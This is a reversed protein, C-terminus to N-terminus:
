GKYGVYVEVSSASYGPFVFNGYLQGDSGPYLKTLWKKLRSYSDDSSSYAYYYQGDTDYSHYEVQTGSPVNTVRSKHYGTVIIKGIKVGSDVDLVWNVPEYSTLVLDRNTGNDGRVEVEVTGEPHYGYSHQVGPPYSGEYVGVAVVGPNSPKDDEEEDEEPESTSSSVVLQGTTLLSKSSADYVAITYTGATPWGGFYASWKGNSVKSPYPYAIIVCQTPDGECRNAEAVSEYDYSGRYTSPLQYVYLKSIQKARGTITTPGNTGAKLSKADITASAAGEDEDYNKNILKFTAGDVIKLAGPESGVPLYEMDTGPKFPSSPYIVATIRYTGSPLSFWHVGGPNNAFGEHASALGLHAKVVGGKTADVKYTSGMLTGSSAPKSPAVPNILYVVYAGNYKGPLSLEVDVSGRAPLSSVIHLAPETIVEGSSGGQLAALQDRLTILQQLLQELVRLQAEIQPSYQASAAAPVALAFVVLATAALKQLRM